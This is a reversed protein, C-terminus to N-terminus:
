MVTSKNKEFTMYVSGYLMYVKSAVKKWEIEHRQSEDLNDNADTTWEKENSVLAEDNAMNKNKVELETNKLGGIQRRYGADSIITYLM